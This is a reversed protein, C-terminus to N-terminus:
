KRGAYAVNYGGDMECDYRNVAARTSCEVSRRTRGLRASVRVTLLRRDARRRRRDISLAQLKGRPSAHFLAVAEIDVRRVHTGDRTRARVVDGQM